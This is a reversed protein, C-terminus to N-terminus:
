EGEGDFDGEWVQDSCLLAVCCFVTCRPRARGDELDRLHGKEQSVSREKNIRVLGLLSIIREFGVYYTAEVLILGEAHEKQKYRQLLVRVRLMLYDDAIKESDDFDSGTTAGPDIRRWDLYDDFNLVKTSFSGTDVVFVAPGEPVAEELTTSQCLEM